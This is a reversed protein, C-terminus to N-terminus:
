APDSGALMRLADSVTAGRKQLREREDTIWRRLYELDLAGPAGTSSRQALAAEIDRGSPGAVGAAVDAAVARYADRFSEGSAVRALADDTAFVEDAIGARCRNRDVEMRAATMETVAIMQQSLSLGALLPEKTEQVDRNYGSPLSRMVQKARFSYSSMTASKGRMLEMADPNRKQPMISSGSCLEKPMKLYGFEPLSFIIVDQAFRSLSIGLHDLADLVVAELKGRANVAALVNHHVSSFGLAAAVMERDLPLPVGYSAAAGLPSRDNLRVAASILGYDDALAEAHSAAWLGVTSLMAPQLHTRGAMPTSQEREALDTLTQVLQLLAGQVALLRERTFVRLATAVQDNRSRGTHIKKGAEGLRETLRREIATHVDEDAQEIAFTGAKADDAIARLEDHLAAEEDSTLLGISHLMRAHAMSGFVDACILERDLLYDNGVTFAEILSELEYGKEWLKAM